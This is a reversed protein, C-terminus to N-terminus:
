WAEGPDGSRLADLDGEWGAGEMSLAEEKSMPRVAVRALAYEVAASASPLRYLERVSEILDEKLDLEIRVRRAPLSAGYRASGERVVHSRGRAEQDRAGRLAARVWESVNLRRREAAARIERYEEESVVVQLRM